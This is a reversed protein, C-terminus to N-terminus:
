SPLLVFQRSVPVHNCDLISVTRFDESFMVHYLKLFDPESINLSHSWPYSFLSHTRPHKKGLVKNRCDLIIYDSLDLTRGFSGSSLLRNSHEELMDGDRLLKIGWKKSPIYFDTRGSQTGYEPLTVLCGKSYSHCCRFFEDQYQAEPPRQIFGPGIRRTALCQPSFMHIVAVIFDLINTTPFSIAPSQTGWLKWEVYWHHLPSPFCYGVKGGNLRDAHLWGNRFCEQLAVKDNDHTLNSDTVVGSASCLVAEFVCTVSPNQLEHALPLGRKFVSASKELQELLV